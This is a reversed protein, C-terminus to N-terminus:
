HGYETSTYTVDGIVEAANCNSIQVCQVLLRTLMYGDGNVTVFIKKQHHSSQLNVRKGGKM